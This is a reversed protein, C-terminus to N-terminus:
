QSVCAFHAYRNVVTKKKQDSERLRATKGYAACAKNAAATADEV